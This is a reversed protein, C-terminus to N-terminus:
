TDWVPAVDGNVLRRGSDLARLRALEEGTLQITEAALNSVIRERKSSSPIAVHGEALLFAIAVQDGTAGHRAGIEALMRDDAVAGRAMPCYATTSIGASRCYDVIPRNQMYVHIEVQNTAITRGALLTRADELLPITFNSVGIMRALGAEHIEALQDTYVPMPYRDNPSPWHLLLLDVRDVRLKRLSEEVSPRVAGPRYNDPAVKTTIFVDERALGSAAIAKGCYEENRYVQATDIHRFGAELAWNVCRLAEEGNRRWTGYGLAPIEGVPTNINAVM